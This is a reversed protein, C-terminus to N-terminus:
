PTVEKAKPDGSGKFCLSFSSSVHFAVPKCQPSCMSREKRPCQACTRHRSSGVSLCMHSVNEGHFVPWCCSLDGSTSSPLTPLSTSVSDLCGILAKSGTFSWHGWSFWSFFNMLSPLPESYYRCGSMVITAISRSPDSSLGELGSDQAGDEVQTM